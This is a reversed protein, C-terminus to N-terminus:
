GVIRKAGFIDSGSQSIPVIRVDEGETPAHVVEDNGVYMSVHHIASAGGSSYFILDGPQLANLSVAKGVTYQAAASRPLTIGAKAYSWLMLGSCDFGAPTTGGWVYPVGREGVAANMAVGAAGPPGLFVGQDGGGLLGKAKADMQNYVSQSKAVADDAAKKKDGLDALIKQAADAATQATKQADAAKAKASDATKIANDYGDMVAANQQALLQLESSQDLFDQASKGTLLASLQTFQVGTYAASALQDVQGQYKDEKAKADAAQQTFTQIDATAKAVQAQKANLDDQAALYAQSAVEAAKSAADLQAKADQVNSPPPDAVASGPNLGVVTAVASVAIAGRMVHKLRNSAM